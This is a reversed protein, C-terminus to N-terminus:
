GFVCLIIVGAFICGCVAIPAAHPIQPICSVPSSGCSPVPCQHGVFFFHEMLPCLVALLAVVGATAFFTHSKKFRFNNQVPALCLVMAPFMTLYSFFSTFYNLWTM